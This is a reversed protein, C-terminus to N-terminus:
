HLGYVDGEGGDLRWLGLELLRQRYEPWIWFEPAGDRGNQWLAQALDRAARVGEESDGWQGGYQLRRGM